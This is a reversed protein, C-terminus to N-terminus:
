LCISYPVTVDWEGPAFEPLSRPSRMGLPILCSWTRVAQFRSGSLVVNNYLGICIVVPGLQLAMVMCFHALQRLEPCEAMSAEPGM